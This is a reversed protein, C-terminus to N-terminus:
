ITGRRGAGPGAGSSRRPEVRHFEVTGGGAKRSAYEALAGAIASDGHRGKQGTEKPLRMVGDIWRLARHDDIVDVSYPLVIQKDQYLAQYRPMNDRYWGESLMVAQARSGYRQATVEALYSGNGRGDLAVHSLRPLRDLLYWLLQKQQEHPVNALEIIAPCILKPPPASSEQLLFFVSLDGSRGFDVGVYSRRQKDLRALVPQLADDCWDEVEVERAMAPLTVFDKSKEIRLVPLEISMCQEVVARPLPTGGGQAPIVDLEEAADVGYEARVEAIWQAEAEPSWVLGLRECIKRYLGADVAESFTVRHVSYPKAGSRCDLILENFKNGYGDHTSMVSVAGGWMRLALAAKLLGPLDSHFAAEDIKVKGQKGRLNAPKSSLAVIRCGSALRLRYILIDGDPDKIVAEGENEAAAGIRGAWEVCDLIYEEAMDKNYGIYWVDQGDQAAAALVSDAADTWSIGIRRSKEIVKVPAVDEIWARQYSLLAPLVIEQWVREMVAPSLGAALSQQQVQRRLQEALKDYKHATIPKQKWM